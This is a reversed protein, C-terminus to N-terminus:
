RSVAPKWRAAPTAAAAPSPPSPPSPAPKRTSSVEDRLSYAATSATRERTFPPPPPPFPVRVSRPTPLFLPASPTVLNALPTSTRKRSPAAPTRSPQVKKYVVHPAPNQAQQTAHEYERRVMNWSDGLYQALEEHQPTVTEQQRHSSPSHLRRSNVQYFVPRPGRIEEADGNYYFGNTTTAKRHNAATETNALKPPAGIIRSKSFVHHPAKSVTYM